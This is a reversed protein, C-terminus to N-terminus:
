TVLKLLDEPIEIMDTIQVRQNPYRERVLATVRKSAADEDREVCFFGGFVVEEGHAAYACQYLKLKEKPEDAKKPM